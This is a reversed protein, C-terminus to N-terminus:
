GFLHFILVGNLAIIILTVISAVATTIRHNALTGMISPRATFLVLPILAFALTVSLVVQSDVLITATPLGLGIVVFSPAMTVLRRTWLPIRFSVFGQMIVQGALTGVTSSSIGSALLSIAFITAAAPGLLPTLTHFARGLDTLQTFGHQHFTIAAVILMGGNVVGALPLAIMVDILTYHFLRRAHEESRPRIRKALLSSHLYIVHPMVTAGLIGVALLLSDGGIQPVVAHFAVQGWDPKGIFLEIVYSIAVILVLVTIVAELSRYGRRQLALIALTSVATLIAASFLPIGLLLNFGVAAGVFEAVDTAMAMVESIIWIPYVIWAPFYKRILEPLSQGTAIGLKASLTQVLMAMVNAYVVVWLLQYGFRAGGAINTAFNGPDMYAVSAVFAPGLYPLLRFLGPRAAGIPPSAEDAIPVPASDSPDPGLTM